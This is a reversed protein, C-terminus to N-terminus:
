QEGVKEWNGKDQYNGGIYKYGDVVQGPKLRQPNPFYSPLINHKNEEWYQAPSLGALNAGANVLKNLAKSSTEMDHLLLKRAGEDMMNLMIGKEKINSPSFSVGTGSWQINVLDKNKIGEPRLKGPERFEQNMREEISKSVDKQYMMGFVRNAAEVQTADLKGADRLKVYEPSAILDFASHMKDTPINRAPAAAIQQLITNTGKGLENMAAAGNPNEGSTARGVQYKIQATMAADVQKDTFGVYPNGGEGALLRIYSDAMNKNQATMLSMFNAGGMASSMASAVRLSPEKTLANLAIKDKLEKLANSAADGAIKGSLREETLRKADEFLKKYPAALEPNRAAIATISADIGSFYRAVNGLAVEHANPDTSANKQSVIFDMQDFAASLKKDGVESLLKITNEKQLAQERTRDEASMTAYLAFRSSARKLEEDAKVQAQHVQWEGEVVNKPSNRDILSGAKSLTDLKNKEFEREAQVVSKADGLASFDFLDKNVKSFKDVLSPYSASWKSFNSMSRAQIQSAPKGQQMADSLSTQERTFTDIIAQERDAKEQKEADGKGKILAEAVGLGFGIWPNPFNQVSSQVPSIVKAGSASPAALNVNFDAM